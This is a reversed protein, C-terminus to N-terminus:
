NNNTRQACRLKASRSRVNRQLEEETPMIVRNTIIQLIPAITQNAPFKIGETTWTSTERKTTSKLAFFEKVMRDELTHFSIVAIRGGTKLLSPSNQLATELEELEKNV